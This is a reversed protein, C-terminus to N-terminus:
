NRSVSISITGNNISTQKLRITEERRVRDLTHQSMDKMEWISASVLKDNQSLSTNKRYGGLKLKVNLFVEMNNPDNDNAVGVALRISPSLDAELGAKFGSIHENASKRWHSGALMMRVSPIYPMQLLAQVDWGNLIEESITSSVSRKSSIGQYRNLYMDAGSWRAELGLGLRNHSRKWERDYHINTGM